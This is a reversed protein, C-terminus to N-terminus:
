TKAHSRSEDPLMQGQMQACPTHFATIWPGNSMDVVAVAIPHALRTHRVVTVIVTNVIRSDLKAASACCAVRSFLM